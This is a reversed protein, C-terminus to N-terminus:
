YELRFGTCNCVPVPPSHDDRMGEGVCGVEVHVDEVHTCLCTRPQPTAVIPQTTEVFVSPILAQAAESLAEAVTPPQVPRPREAFGQCGCETLCRDQGDRGHNGRSHPCAGCRDAMDWSPPLYRPCIEVVCERCPGLVEHTRGSHGCRACFGSVLVGDLAEAVYLPPPDGLEVYTLGCRMCGRLRAVRESGSSTMACAYAGFEAPPTVADDPVDRVFARLPVHGDRMCAVLNALGPDYRAERALRRALEDSRADDTM